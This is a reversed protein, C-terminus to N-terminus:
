KHEMHYIYSLLNYVCVQMLHPIFVSSQDSLGHQKLIGELAVSAASDLARQIRQWDQLSDISVRPLDDRIDNAEDTQLM